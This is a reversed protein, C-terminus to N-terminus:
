TPQATGELFKWWAFLTESPDMWGAWQDVDPWAPVSSRCGDKIHYAVPNSTDTYPIFGGAPVYDCRLGTNACWLM